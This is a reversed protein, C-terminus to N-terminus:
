CILVYDHCSNLRPWIFNIYNKTLTLVDNSFALSDFGYKEKTKFITPNTIGNEGIGNEVMQVALFHYTMPRSVKVM